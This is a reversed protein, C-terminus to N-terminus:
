HVSAQQHLVWQLQGLIVPRDHATPTMALYTSLDDVARSWEGLALSITGRDRYEAPQEPDFLLILDCYELAPGIAGENKHLTKLNRLVRVFIQREDVPRLYENRLELSDGSVERLLHACSVEDRTMGFFPDVFVGPADVAKLLFHYPFNVGRVEVGVRKAVEMYLVALSIPIGTRRELVESMLTNRADYYHDTNGRFGIERMGRVLADIRGLETSEGDVRARVADCLEDIRAHCDDLDVAPDLARSLLLMAELADVDSKAALAGFAARVEPGFIAM